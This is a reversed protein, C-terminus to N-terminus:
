SPQGRLIASARAARELRANVEDWQINAVFADIYRAVAAGFDLHYSHEYMDMVLLPVSSAL